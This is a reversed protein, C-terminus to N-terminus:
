VRLAVLHKREEEFVAWYGAAFLAQDTFVRSLRLWTEQVEGCM